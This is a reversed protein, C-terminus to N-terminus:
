PQEVVLKTRSSTLCQPSSRGFRSRGSGTGRDGGEGKEGTCESQSGSSERSEGKVLLCRRKEYTNMEGKKGRCSIDRKFHNKM